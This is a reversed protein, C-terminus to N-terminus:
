GVSKEWKTIQDKVKPQNPNIRLSARWSEIAARRAPEDIQSGLQYQVILADAVGNLAPPYDPKLAVSKRYEALALDPKKSRLYADGLRKRALFSDDKEILKTLLVVAEAPRSQRTLNTGLNLLTPAAYSDLELSKRYAREADPFRGLYDLTVGLNSWAPASRPNLDVAKQAQALAEDARGLTLYVTGLATVSEVHDPKLSLAHNYADAAEDFENLCQNTVGLSYFGRYGYPDLKTADGYLAKAKQFDADSRYLDGLLLRAMTLNPDSAVAQSLSAVAKQKDGKQAALAGQVYQNVGAQTPQRPTTQCGVLTLALAPLALKWSFLGVKAAIRNSM